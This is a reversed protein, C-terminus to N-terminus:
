NPTKIINTTILFNSSSANSMGHWNRHLSCVVASLTPAWMGWSWGWEASFGDLVEMVTHYVPGSRGGYWRRKERDIGTWRWLEMSALSEAYVGYAHGIKDMGKWEPMDNFTHFNSQPYNKYWAHYLGLM